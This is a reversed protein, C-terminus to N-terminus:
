YDVCVLHLGKAPATPGASPRDGSALLRAIDRPSRKGRGIELLTGVMNRVMHHLFGSAKVTYHLEDGAGVPLWSSVDCRRITTKAGCSSARFGAFDHEGVFARAGESMADEDLHHPYHLTFRSRFPLSVPGRDLCYRYTKARASYRAHFTAATPEASRVRIDPPLLTNGGRVLAEPPLARPLDFHVVQAEAHVGADTRGAAVVRVDCDALKSFAAEVRGQISDGHPQVQWGCYETGDYALV